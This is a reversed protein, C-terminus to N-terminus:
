DGDADNAGNDDPLQRDNRPLGHQPSDRYPTYAREPLFPADDPLAMGLPTLEEGTPGMRRECRIAILGLCRVYEGPAYCAIQKQPVGQLVLDRSFEIKGANAPVVDAHAIQWPVLSRPPSTAVPFRGM